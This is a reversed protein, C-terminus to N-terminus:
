GLFSSTRGSFNFHAPNNKLIANNKTKNVSEVLTNVDLPWLTRLDIHEVSINESELENKLGSIIINTETFLKVYETNM